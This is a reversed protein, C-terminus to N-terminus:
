QLVPRVVHRHIRIVGNVLWIRDARFEIREFAPSSRAAERAHNRGCAGRRPQKTEFTSSQCSGIYAIARVMRRVMRSKWFETAQRSPKDAIEWVRATYGRGGHQSSSRECDKQQDPFALRRDRCRAIRVVPGTICSQPHGWLRRTQARHKGNNDAPTVFLLRHDTPRGQLAMRILLTGVCSLRLRQIHRM